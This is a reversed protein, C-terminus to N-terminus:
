TAELSHAIAPQQDEILEIVLEILIVIDLLRLAEM